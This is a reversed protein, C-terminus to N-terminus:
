LDRSRGYPRKGQAMVKEVKITPNMGTNLCRHCANWGEAISATVTTGYKSKYLVSPEPLNFSIRFGIAIKSHNAWLSVTIKM